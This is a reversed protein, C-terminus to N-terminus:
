HVPMRQVIQEASPRKDSATIWCVEMLRWMDASIQHQMQTSCRPRKGQQVLPVIQWDLRAKYSAFPEENTFIEFCLMGFAYVDSKKTFLENMNVENAPFLEPAMYAARGALIPTSYGIVTARGYDTLVAYGEEDVLVNNHQLDGHIINQSHLYQLGQAIGQVLPLREYSPNKTIYKM